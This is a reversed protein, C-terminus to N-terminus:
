VIPLPRFAAGQFRFTMRLPQSIGSWLEQDLRGASAEEALPGLIEMAVKFGPRGSLAVRLEEILQSIEASRGIETLSLALDVTVFTAEPLRGKEIESRRVSSLLDTAEEADGCRGAVRGELWRSLLEEEEWLHDGSSWAKRRAERAKEVEGACASCYALGLCCQIALWPRRKADLGQSAERLFRAARWPEGDDVHLMGLLALSAAEEGVEQAEAYRRQAHHFLAAAEESRGQDWRLVGLARSFFGRGSPSVPLCGAREFAAEAKQFDGLLRRAIGALCLARGYAEAGIELGLAEQVDDQTALATALTLM